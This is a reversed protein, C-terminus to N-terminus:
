HSGSQIGQDSALELSEVLRWAHYLAGDAWALADLGRMSTAELGGASVTWLVDEIVLRQVPFPTEIGRKALAGAVANSVGLDAFNKTM